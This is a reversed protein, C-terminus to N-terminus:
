PSPAASARSACRCMYLLYLRGPGRASALDHVDRIKAVVTPVDHVRLGADCARVGRRRAVGRHLRPVVVDERLRAPRAAEVVARLDFAQLREAEARRTVERRQVGDDSAPLYICVTTGQGAVSDIEVAGRGEVRDGITRSM